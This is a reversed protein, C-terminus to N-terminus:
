LKFLWTLDSQDITLWDDEKFNKEVRDITNSLIVKYYHKKIFYEVEFIIKKQNYILKM